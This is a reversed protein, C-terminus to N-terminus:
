EMDTREAWQLKTGEVISWALIEILHSHNRGSYWNKRSGTGDANLVFSNLYIDSVYQSGWQEWTGVLNFDSIQKHPIISQLRHILNNNFHTSPSKEGTLTLIQNNLQYYITEMQHFGNNAFLFIQLQGDM